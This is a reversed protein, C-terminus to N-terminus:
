EHLQPAAQEGHEPDHPAATSKSPVFRWLAGIGCGLVIIVVGAVALAPLIGISTWLFGFLLDALAMSMGIVASFVSWLLNRADDPFLEHARVAVVTGAYSLVVEMMGIAIFVSWVSPIASMLALLAGALNSAAVISVPAPLREDFRSLFAGCGALATMGLLVLGNFREDVGAISTVLPQWIFLLVSLGLATASSAVLVLSMQRNWSAKVRRVINSEREAVPAPVSEGWCLCMWGALFLLLIGACLILTSTDVAKSGTFVTAGGLTAGVWKAISSMRVAARRASKQQAPITNLTLSIPAGSYLAQGVSWLILALFMLIRVRLALIFGVLSSGWLVLGLAGIKRHGFRDGWDGSPIEFITSVVFAIFFIVGINEPSFDAHLMVSVYVAGFIFDAVSVLLAMLALRWVHRYEAAILKM